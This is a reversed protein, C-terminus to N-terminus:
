RQLIPTVYEAGRRDEHNSGYVTASFLWVLLCVASVFGICLHGIHIGGEKVSKDKM